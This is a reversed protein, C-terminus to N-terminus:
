GRGCTEDARFLCSFVAILWAGRSYLWHWFWARAVKLKQLRRHVDCVRLRQCIPWMLIPITTLARPLICLTSWEWPPEKKARARGTFIWADGYKCSGSPPHPTCSKGATARIHTGWNYTNGRVCIGPWARRIHTGGYVRDPIHEGEVPIETELSIHEGSERM